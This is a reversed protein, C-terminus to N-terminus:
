RSNTKVFKQQVTHGNDLEASFIYVGSELDQVNILAPASLNAVNWQNSKIVRGSLDFIRYAGSACDDGAKVVVYDNVPNPSLLLEPKHEQVPLGSSLTAGNPNLLLVLSSYPSLTVQGTYVNNSVDSYSKNLYITKPTGSANYEVRIYEEPNSFTTNVETLNVNDLWFGGSPEDIEFIISANSETADPTFVFENETRFNNIVCYENETLKSYPSLSQRLFLALAKSAKAGLLSFKLRYSKGAEVAGIGIVIKSTNLLGTSSTFTFKLCGADLKDNVWQVATNNNPSYDYLGNINSNFSGNSFKNSGVSNNVSYAPLPFPSRKTQADQFSSSQWMELTKIESCDVGANVYDLKQIFHDDFPRCYYNNNFTGFNNIDNKVTKYANVMQNKRRAILINNKVTTNVIPCNPCINDHTMRLQTNNDCLTNDHINIDHSNHVFVGMESCQLVTNKGVEVFGSNDDLYIGHAPSYFPEDTGEPAGIGKIVINGTIKRNVFSRPATAGTWTYIGGGDDKLLNFVNVFNNVVSISDGIFNIGNYGTSDISNNQITIQSGRVIIGQYSDTEGSGMGALMGTNLISNNKILVDRCERELFISNDFSGKIANNEITSKTLNIADIADEGTHSIKCHSIKIGHGIYIYFADTNAGLFHLNTFSIYSKNTINVLYDVVSVQAKYVAPNPNDFYFYIKKEGASSSHSYYWEGNIDLTSLSNQIFYGFGDIPTYLSTPTFTLSSNNHATISNRDLVWRNPRLVLEAGTWNTGAPMENDTIKYNSYHSEFNLYGKNSATANPFRGRAKPVDNVLVTNVTSACNPCNSVWINPAYNTWNSLTQLGSIIPLASGSGYAGFAIPALASGSKQVTITGTFVDGRLFLVSDGPVLNPFFSNLKNLSNWPTNKNSAQQPSRNDDGLSSSFYYNTARASHNYYFLIISSFLIKKM